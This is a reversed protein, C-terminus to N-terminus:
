AARRRRVEWNILDFVEQLHRQTAMAAWEALAKESLSALFAQEKETPTTTLPAAMPNEKAEDPTSGPHANVNARGLPSTLRSWRGM